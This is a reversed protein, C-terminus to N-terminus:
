SHREIVVSVTNSTKYVTAVGFKRQLHFSSVLYCPHRLGNQNVPAYGLKSKEDCPHKM